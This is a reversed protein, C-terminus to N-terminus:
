LTTMCRKLRKITLRVTGLVTVQLLWPPQIILSSTLREVDGPLHLGRSQEIKCMANYGNNTNCNDRLGLMFIHLLMQQQHWLPIKKDYM